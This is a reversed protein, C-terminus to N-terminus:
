SIRRLLAELHGQLLEEGALIEMRVVLAWLPKGGLHDLGIKVLDKHTCLIAKADKQSDAWQRLSEIDERSYAHHDPFERFAVVQFGSAALTHRFGAPNGIGCFAAVPGGALEGKLALEGGSSSILRDARHSCEIWDIQPAHRRVTNQIARREEATAMDARSLAAVHARGLGSLPERLLGRPFLRDFGFPNLADILVMDLDRKLRRHQFADDLVLIQSELESIATM